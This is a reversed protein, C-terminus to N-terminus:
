PSETFISQKNPRLLFGHRRSDLTTQTIISPPLKIFIITLISIAVPFQFQMRFVDLDLPFHTLLLFDVLFNISFLKYMLEQTNLRYWANLMEPAINQFKPRRVRLQRNGSLLWINFPLKWYAMKWWLMVPFKHSDNRFLTEMFIWSHNSIWFWGWHFNIKTLHIQFILFLAM